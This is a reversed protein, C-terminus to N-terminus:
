QRKRAVVRAAAAIVKGASGAGDGPQDIRWESGDLGDVL